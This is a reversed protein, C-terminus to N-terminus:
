QGHEPEHLPNPPLGQLPAIHRPQYRTGSRQAISEYLTVASIDWRHPAPPPLYRLDAALEAATAADTRRRVYGITIHPTYDREEPTYWRALASATAQQLEALAGTPENVGAWIVAPRGTAPFAGWQGLQVPFPAVACAVASLASAIDPHHRPAIDGLFVLTTHLEPAAVWQMAGDYSALLTQGDRIAAQVPPAVDLAVFLRATAQAM